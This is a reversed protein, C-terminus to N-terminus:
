RGLAEREYSGQNFGEEYAIHTDDDNGQPDYECGEYGDDYGADYHKKTKM